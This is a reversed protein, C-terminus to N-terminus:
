DHSYNLSHNSLYRDANSAECICGLWQSVVGLNVRNTALDFSLPVLGNFPDVVLVAPLAELHGSNESLVTVLVRALRGVQLGVAALDDVANAVDARLFELDDEAVVHSQVAFLHGVGLKFLKIRFNKVNLVRGQM